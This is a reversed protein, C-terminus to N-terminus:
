EGAMLRAVPRTFAVNELVIKLMVTLPVALLMGILGWCLGWFSLAVLIVLPSLGVAKGTMAPEVAYASLAHITVLLVTVGIAPGISDMSLFALVMPGSCAIISGIYPIFNLLFTLVGFM